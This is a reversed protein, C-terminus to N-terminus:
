PKYLSRTLISATSCCAINKDRELLLTEKYKVSLLVAHGKALDTYSHLFIIIIIDLNVKSIQINLLLSFIIYLYSILTKLPIM